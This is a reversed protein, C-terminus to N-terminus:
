KWWGRARGILYAWQGANDGRIRNAETTWHVADGANNHGPGQPGPLYKVGPIANAHGSDADFTAQMQALLAYGAGSYEAPGLILEPLDPVALDARTRSVMNRFAAPLQAQWDAKNLDAENGAWVGITGVHNEIQSLAAQYTSVMIPYRRLDGTATTDPNWPADAGLLGTGSRSVPVIVVRVAGKTLAVIQRAMSMAPGVRHGPNLSHVLPEQAVSLTLAKAGYLGSGYSNPPCMWIDPHWGDKIPDAVELGFGEGNSQAKIILIVTPKHRSASVDYLQVNRITGAWQNGSEILLTNQSPTRNRLYSVQMRTSPQTDGGRIHLGNWAGTNSGNGVLQARAGLTFNASTQTIIEFTMVLDTAETPITLGLATMKSYQGTGLSHTAGAGALSWGGAM